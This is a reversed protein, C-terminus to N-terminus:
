FLGGTYLPNFSLIQVQQLFEERLSYVGSRFPQMTLPVLSSTVFHTERPLILPFISTCGCEQLKSNANRMFPTAYMVSMVFSKNKCTEMHSTRWFLIKDLIEVATLLWIKHSTCQVTNNLFLHEIVFEPRDLYGFYLLAIGSIYIFSCLNQICTFLMYTYIPKSTLSM